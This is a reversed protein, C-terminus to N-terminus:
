LSREPSTLITWTSSLFCALICSNGARFWWCLQTTTNGWKWENGSYSLFPFSTCPVLKLHVYLPLVLRQSKANPEHWIVTGLLQVSSTRSRWRPPLLNASWPLKHECGPPLWQCEDKSQLKTGGHAMNIMNSCFMTSVRIWGHFGLTPRLKISFKSQTSIVFVDFLKQKDLMCKSYTPKAALVPTELGMRCGKETGCCRKKRQSAHFNTRVERPLGLDGNRFAHPPIAATADLVHRETSQVSM